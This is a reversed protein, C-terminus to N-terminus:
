VHNNRQKECLQTLNNLNCFANNMDLKRYIKSGQLINILDELSPSPYLTREIPKNAQRM